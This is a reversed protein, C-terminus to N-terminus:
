AELLETIEQPVKGFNKPIRYHKSIHNQLDDEFTSKSWNEWFLNSSTRSSNFMDRSLQFRSLLSIDTPTINKNKTKKWFYYSSESFRAYISERVIKRLEKISLKELCLAINSNKIKLAKIVKDLDSKLLLKGLNEKDNVLAIRGRQKVIVKTPSVEWVAIHKPLKEIVCQTHKPAVVVIVKDFFKDYSEIQGQLRYLSDAESKIEIGIFRSEEYVALDIRRYHNDLTLESMIISNASLVGKSRLHNLVIAKIDSELIM